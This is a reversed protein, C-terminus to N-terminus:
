KKIESLSISAIDGFFRKLFLRDIVSNFLGRFIQRDARFFIRPWIGLQKVYSKRQMLQRSPNFFNILSLAENKLRKKSIFFLINQRYDYGIRPNLLIEPRILDIAVYGREEFKKVWFINWQENIHNEGEQRPIAASFVIRDSLNTLNEIFVDSYKTEIHEAVELSIALDFKRKLSLRKRLDHRIFESESLLTNVGHFDVGKIDEVGAEKFAKLWTGIGCGIDIVSKPSLHKLIIPVVEKASKYSFPYNNKFYFNKDYFHNDSDRMNKM